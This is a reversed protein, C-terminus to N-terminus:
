GRYQSKAGLFAAGIVGADNGLKATVLKTTQKSHRSMVVDMVRERIPALLKEGEKSVGGGVCIIEPQLFNIINAVGCAFADFYDDLVMQAAADGQEAARFPTKASVNEIDGECMQWMLSDKHQLMIERTTTKLGNASCYAEMCGPRGCSCRRGGERIVMHGIEAGGYYSGSFIEGNIIIGGGVGTGITIAMMNTTGVGAGAVYEGYAAANADNDLFVPKDVLSEMIKQVPANVFGLNEALEVEGLEKNIVGPAGIGIWCIDSKDVGSNIVAQEYTAAMDKCIEEASRPANTRTDAKAVINYNEDVIGVVINTGGLDIGAYYKM